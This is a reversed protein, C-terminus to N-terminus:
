CGAQCYVIVNMDRLQATAEAPPVRDLFEASLVRPSEGELVILKALQDADPSVSDCRLGEFTASSSLHDVIRQVSDHFDRYASPMTPFRSKTREFEARVEEATFSTEPQPKCGLGQDSLLTIVKDKPAGVSSALATTTTSSDDSGSPTPSRDNAQHTGSCAASGALIASLALTRRLSSRRLPRDCVVVGAVPTSGIRPTENMSTAFTCEARGFIHHGDTDTGSFVRM